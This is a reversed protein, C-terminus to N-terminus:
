AIMEEDKKIGIIERIKEDLKEHKTRYIEEAYNDAESLDYRYDDLSGCRIGVIYAHIKEAANNRMKYIREDMVTNVNIIQENINTLKEVSTKLENIVDSRRKSNRRNNRITEVTDKGTNEPIKALAAKQESFGTITVAAEKRVAHLANEADIVEDAEMAALKKTLRHIYEDCVGKGKKSDFRGKIRLIWGPLYTVSKVKKSNSTYNINKM